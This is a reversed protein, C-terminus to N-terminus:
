HQDVQSWKHADAYYPQKTVTSSMSYAADSLHNGEKVFKFELAFWTIVSLVFLVFVSPYHFRFWPM